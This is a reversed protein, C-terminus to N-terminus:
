LGPRPGQQVQRRAPEDGRLRRELQDPAEGQLSRHQVDARQRGLCLAHRLPRRRGHALAREAPARRHDVLEPDARHQDAARAQRRHAAALRRRLRHRPRLRGREDARGNRGLDRRDQRQGQLRDQGRVRHGLRLNKDTEGREIYGAWAVISVEGEGAGLAEANDQAVAQGSFSVALAIATCSKLFSKM